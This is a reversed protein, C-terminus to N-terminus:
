ARAFVELAGTLVKFSVPTETTLEGDTNVPLRQETEISLAAATLTTVGKTKDHRGRLLWPLKGILSLVSQPELAYLHLLGDDIAAASHVVVGGGHFRGNGVAIQIAKVTRIGHESRLTARFPRGPGIRSLTIAYALPGFWRKTPADMAQALRASLGITAINFFLSDNAQGVDIRRRHGDLIIQAAGTPDTPIALARALDNATGLPLIGLPLKTEILGRAAANLTGDGGGVIVLDVQGRHARIAAGIEAPSAIEPQVLTMGSGRLLDLATGINEQGRRSKANVLLLARPSSM